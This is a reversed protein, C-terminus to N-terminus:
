PRGVLTLEAQCLAILADRGFGGGFLLLRSSDERRLLALAQGLERRAGERDGTRRAMLGLHLRPMAFTPDLYVAAQDHDLAGARDGARERCLALLYHAGTNLEDLALLQSCTHEAETLQGSHALLAGRLLLVDPDGGAESPLEVVRELAEGFRERQLLELANSLDFVRRPTANTKAASGGRPRELAGALPESRADVHGAGRALLQEIRAASDQVTEIWSNAWANGPSAAPWLKRPVQEPGLDLADKRQYYFTGHTHCLHFDHSLGRLTEAHGLFLYGGPALARTLKAVLAAAVEPAFYMMMNRCFIVDYTTHELPEYALNLERFTVAARIREDLVFDRGERRFWREQLQKPTERLAWSTYRGRRAKELVVPNIDFAHLTTEWGPELASERLLIALSYPEEGSACGASLLRLKRTASQIQVRAPLALETFARMQDSHRFFYTEPVTLELALARREETSCTAELKNLYLEPASALAEARRRLVDALLDHKTEDFALGMHQTIADRLRLVLAELSPSM